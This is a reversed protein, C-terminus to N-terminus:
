AATEGPRGTLWGLLQDEAERIAAVPVHEDRTHSLAPDGPGYNVAPIGNAQM